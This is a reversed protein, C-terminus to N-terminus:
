YGSVADIDDLDKYLLNYSYEMEQTWFDTEYAMLKKRCLEALRVASKRVLPRTERESSDLAEQMIERAKKIRAEMFQERTM